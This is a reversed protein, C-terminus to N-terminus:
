ARGREESLYSDTLTATACLLGFNWGVCRLILAGWFHVLAIGNLAVVACAALLVLGAATM